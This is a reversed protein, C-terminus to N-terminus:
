MFRDFLNDVDMNNNTYHYFIDHFETKRRRVESFIADAELHHIGLERVMEAPNTLMFAYMLMPEGMHSMEREYAMMKNINIHSLSEIGLANLFGYMLMNQRISTLDRRNVLEVMDFFFQEINMYLYSDLSRPGLTDVLERYLPEVLFNALSISGFRGSLLIHEVSGGPHGWFLGQTIISFPKQYNPNHGYEPGSKFYEVEPDFYQYMTDFFVTDALRGIKALTTLGCETNPCYV